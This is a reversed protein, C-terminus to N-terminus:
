GENAQCTASRCGLHLEQDHGNQDTKGTKTQDQRVHGPPLWGTRFNARFLPLLSSADLQDFFNTKGLRTSCFVIPVVSSLAVNM